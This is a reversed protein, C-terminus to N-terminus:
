EIITIIVIYFLLIEHIQCVFYDVRENPKEKKLHCIESKPILTKVNIHELPQHALWVGARSLAVYVLPLKYVFPRVELLSSVSDVRVDRLGAIHVVKQGDERAFLRCFSCFPLNLPLFNHYYSVFLCSIYKFINLWIGVFLVNNM